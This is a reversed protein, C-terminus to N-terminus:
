AEFYAEISGLTPHERLVFTPDPELGLTERARTLVAAQKVTDIGLDAELDLDSELMEEPYGTREALLRRLLTVIRGDSRAPTSAPTAADASAAPAKPLGSATLRAVFHDALDRLTPHARLQF